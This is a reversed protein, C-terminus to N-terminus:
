IKAKLFKVFDQNIVCYNLIITAILFHVAHIERFSWSTITQRNAVLLQLDLSLWAGDILNNEVKKTLPSFNLM